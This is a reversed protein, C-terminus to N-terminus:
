RTLEQEKIADVLHGATLPLGDLYALSTLRGSLDALEVTLIQHMQGDRNLEVIYNTEYREVFGRVEENIPLSRLRMFSTPLGSESLRFRAEDVAPLTSGFAIIGVRADDVQDIIPGPVLRRATDFKRQLRDMNKRWDEAKESYVAKENHGTGRNFYAAQPHTNGPLTRYTIGDGDRDVYRYFGQAEVEEATLVKGRKMPEAPYTFPESMWTNMGLDLDSLVLVPTQLQDALDFAQVGFDFCEGPTAPFLLVNNTDGHGLHYAFLVDGQSTRTPLGTSPGLRQIDWIVCPIESFYGLGVFESMLSIGPGSTATMARAGAFGAGMIMGAAALEDEAQIVAYNAQGTEPDTRLKPLFDNLADIMSTSPTIPYWSALTVGGFVTGLAAAENGTILIKGDTLDLPEVQYPDRKSLNAASWQFAAEVVAMNQTVVSARNGFHYHLAEEIFSRNIGLLQAIVGVYAMNTLYDKIKGQGNAQSLVQSVPMAYYIVDERSEALNWEAPYLFVGGPAVMALDDQDTAQNFAIVIEASDSRSVFGEHSIRVHFWTPLGQINSPFINKGNVPIGMKFLARLLALNATQSGTGNVTAAVITFNNIIPDGAGKRPSIQSEDALGKSLPPAGGPDGIM